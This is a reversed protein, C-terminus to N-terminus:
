KVIGCNLTKVSGHLIFLECFKENLLTHELRRLGFVHQAFHFQVSFRDCLRHDVAAEDILRAKILCDGAADAGVEDIQGSALNRRFNHPKNGTPHSPQVARKWNFHACGRHSNRQDIRKIEMGRLVETECETSVNLDHNRRGLLDFFEDLLM